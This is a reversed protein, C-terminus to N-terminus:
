DGRMGLAKLASTGTKESQRSVAKELARWAWTGPKLLVVCVPARIALSHLCFNGWLCLPSSVVNVRATTRTRHIKEVSM